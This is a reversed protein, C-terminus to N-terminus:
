PHQFGFGPKDFPGPYDCKCSQSGGSTSCGIGADSCGSVTVLSGDKCTAKCTDGDNDSLGRTGGSISKQQNKSLVTIGDLNLINKLM